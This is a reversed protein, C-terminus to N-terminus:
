GTLNPAIEFHWLGEDKQERKFLVIPLTVICPLTSCIDSVIPFSLTKYLFHFHSQDPQWYWLSLWWVAPLSTIFMISKPLIRNVIYIKPSRTNYCQFHLQARSVQKSYVKLIAPLCWIIKKYHVMQFALTLSVFISARYKPINLGNTPSKRTLKKKSFKLHISYRPSWISGTVAPKEVDETTM